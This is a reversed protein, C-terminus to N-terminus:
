SGTVPSATASEGIWPLEERHVFLVFASCLTTVVAMLFMAGGDGTGDPGVVDIGLKTLHTGIAGGMIALTLAAGMARTKPVLLLVAAVLEIVAVGYRGLPEAGLQEFLAVSEAAGALKFGVVQLLILAAILRPIFTKLPRM